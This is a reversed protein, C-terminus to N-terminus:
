KPAGAADTKPKDAEESAARKPAYNLRKALEKFSYPNPADKEFPLAERRTLIAVNMSGLGRLTEVTLPRIAEVRAIVLSLEKDVPVAVSRADATAPDPLKLPDLGAAAAFVARRVASDEFVGNARSEDFLERRVAVREQPTLKQDPPLNASLREALTKIGETAAVKRHADADAKLRDFAALTRWDREARERVEDLSEAPAKAKAGTVVVYYRNEAGDIAPTTLLIGQQLGTANKGALEHVSLLLQPMRVTAGGAQVSASGFPQLTVIDEASAWAERTEVKPAPITIGSQNRVSEVIQAALDTLSPAKSSWDPPLTKFPGDEPLGRTAQQVAIKIVRDAEDLVKGVAERTMAEEIKAKEAAFEGPYQTRNQLWRKNVAVPDLSVAKAIEARDLALWAFKVRPPLVYGIGGPSGSPDTTRFKEFHAQLQEATPAAVTSALHSAEIVVADCMAQEFMGALSAALARDSTRAARLDVERMRWMGRLEALALELGKVTGQGRPREPIGAGEIRSQIAQLIEQRKEPHQMLEFRVRLDNNEAYDLEAMALTPVFERGDRTEGFFGGARAEEALLVWHTGSEIGLSAIAVPALRQFARFKEEGLYIEGLRLTRGNLTGVAVATPDGGCQSATGQVLFTVMLLSGFVALMWKQYKRMTKTM